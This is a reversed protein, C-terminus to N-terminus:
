REDADLTVDIAPLTADLEDGLADLMAFAARWNAATTEPRQM